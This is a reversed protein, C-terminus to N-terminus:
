GPRKPLAAGSERVYWRLFERVLASRDTGAANVAAGAKTWLEDDIRVVRHPTKPKDPM